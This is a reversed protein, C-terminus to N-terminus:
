AVLFGVAVIAAILGVIAGGFLRQLCGSDM